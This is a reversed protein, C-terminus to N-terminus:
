HVTHEYDVMYPLEVLFMEFNDCIQQFQAAEIVSFLKTLKIYLVSVLVFM